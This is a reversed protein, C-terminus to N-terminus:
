IHSVSCYVLYIMRKKHSKPTYNKKILNIKLSKPFLYILFRVDFYMKTLNLSYVGLFISKKLFYVGKTLNIYYSRFYKLTQDTMYNYEEDPINEEACFISELYFILENFRQFLPFISLKWFLSIRSKRFCFHQGNNLNLVSLM